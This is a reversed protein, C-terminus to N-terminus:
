ESQEESYDYTVIPESYKGSGTNKYWKDTSDVSVVHTGDLDTYTVNIKSWQERSGKYKITTTKNDAAYYGTAFANEGIDKVASGMIIEALSECGIFARDGIEEVSDPLVIKELKRCESFAGVGVRLLGNASFTVSKLETAGCFASDGIYKITGPLTIDTIKSQYFAADAIGVFATTNGLDVKGVGNGCKIIWGSVFYVASGGVEILGSGTGSGKITCETFADSKVSTVTAPLKFEDASLGICGYFASKGITTLNGGDPFSVGVLGSCKVFASDGIVEVNAPISIRQVTKDIFQEAFAYEGIETVSSPIGSRKCGIVLTKGDGSLVCNNESKFTGGNAVSLTELSSCGMFPNSEIEEISAPLAISSLGKCYVFSLWGIKKVGESITVERLNECRAFAGDISEVNGPITVSELASNDSFAYRVSRIKIDTPILSEACAAIMDYGLECHLDELLCNGKVIYNENARDVSITALEGCGAFVYDEMNTVGSPIFVETLGTFAFAREGIYSVSSPIQVETLKRCGAFMNFGIETIGEKLVARRLKECDAFAYNAETITGPVIVEEIILRLDGINKIWVIPKGKYLSPIELKVGNFNGQGIVSYGKGDPNLSYELEGSTESTPDKVTQADYSFRLTTIGYEFYDIVSSDVFLETIVGNNFKYAEEDNKAVYANGESNFTLLRWHTAGLNNFKLYTYLFESSDNGFIEAFEKTITHEGETGDNIIVDNERDYIITDTKLIRHSFWQGSFNCAYFNAYEEEYIIIFLPSGHMEVKVGNEAITITKYPQDSGDNKCYEIRSPVFNSKEFARVWQSETIVHPNKYDCVSCKGDSGYSHFDKSSVESTHECTAAHWHYESDVSWKESYTHEHTGSPGFFCGAAMMCSVVLIGVLFLIKIKKM